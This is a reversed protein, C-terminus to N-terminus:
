ENAGLVGKNQLRELEEGQMGLLTQLLQHTHQGLAPVAAGLRTASGSMQWPANVGTFQGAGDEVPAFLGRALLHENTLADGPESYAACPVGAAEMIEVVQAVTRTSAWGQVSQMMTAWHESRTPVSAFRPDDRLTSLQTADCLNHFNRQTLPVIIVHGDSAAVPGYATRTAKVPFQAAQLEYILLNLMCDMLAVDVEQGLGTRARQLLAAQIGGFAYVAGLLDAVFTATPAPNKRDGAYKALLGEFGSAAQVIMAYAPKDALPGNQGYGSIACYILQPNIARLVTAGLGLREMVGPRFNELVVDAQLVLRKVIAVGEPTKLDLVLSQKGANLQGFYTSFGDRLPQRQRMDDGEPSEIKIVEAGLDAMLRACYPGAIMLSFDLVRIGSLARPLATTSTM